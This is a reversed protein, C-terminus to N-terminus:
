IESDTDAQLGTAGDFAFCVVPPSYARRLSISPM